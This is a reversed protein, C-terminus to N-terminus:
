AAGAPGLPGVLAAPDFVATSAVRPAVGLVEVEARATLVLTSTLGAKLVSASDASLQINWRTSDIGGWGLPSPQLLDPPVTMLEPGSVLRIFGSQFPVMAVTAKPDVGRLWALAGTTDQLRKIGLDLVGYAAGTGSSRVFVIQFDPRGPGLLGVDLATPWLLYPGAEYSAYIEFNSTTQRAGFDQLGWFAGM